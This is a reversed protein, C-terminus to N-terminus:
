GRDTQHAKMWVTEVGAPLAILARSEIDRHRGKPHRRGAKLAHLCCVVGKCDSVLRKPKCEELARVVVLFEARYVSQKLGPLPLFVSEGIDTYYGVGCRRFHEHPNGSLWLRNMTLCLRGKLPLCCAMCGSALLRKSPAAWTPCHHVIHELDEVAEGCRVCMEGIDFVSNARAEHWVGGLAANLASKVSDKQSQGDFKLQRLGQTALGSALGQFDPRSDSVEKCLQLASDWKVKYTPKM